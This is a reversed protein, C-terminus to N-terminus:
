SCMTAMTQCVPYTICFSPVKRIDVATLCFIAAHVPSIMVSRKASSKWIIVAKARTQGILRRARQKRVANYCKGETSQWDAFHM